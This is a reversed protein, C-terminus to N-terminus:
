GAQALLAVVVPVTLLAITLKLYYKRNNMIM